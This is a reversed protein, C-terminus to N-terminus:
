RRFNCDFFVWICFLYSNRNPFYFQLILKLPFLNLRLMQFRLTSSENEKRLHCCECQGRVLSITVSIMIAVIISSILESIFKSCHVYESDSDVLRLRLDNSRVAYTCTTHFFCVCEWAILISNLWCHSSHLVIVRIWVYVFLSAFAHENRCQEFNKNQMCFRHWVDYHIRNATGLTWVLPM